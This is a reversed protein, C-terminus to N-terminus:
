KRLAANQARLGYFIIVARTLNGALATTVAGPLNINIVNTYAGSLMLSPNLNLRADNEFSVQDRNSNAAVSIRQTQPIMLHNILGYNTLVDRQNVSIRMLGNYFNFYDNVNAAGLEVENPYTKLRFNTDTAAVLQGIYFGIERIHFNDNTQLRVETALVSSQGQGVDGQLVPFTYTTGTTTIPQELRIIAETLLPLGPAKSGESKALANANKYEQVTKDFFYQKYNNSDTM